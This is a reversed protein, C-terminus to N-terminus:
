PKTGGCPMPLLVVQGRFQEGVMGFAESLLTKMDGGSSIYADALDTFNKEAGANSGHWFVTTFVKGKQAVLTQRRQEATVPDDNLQGDTVIFVSSQLDPSNWKSYNEYIESLPTYIDTGGEATLRSLDFKSPDCSQFGRGSVDDWASNFAIVECYANEPLLKLLRLVARKVDEMAGSMSGSRDILISFAMKAQAAPLAAIPTQKMCIPAGSAADVAVIQRGQLVQGNKDTILVKIAGSPLTGTFTMRGGVVGLLMGTKKDLVAHTIQGKLISTGNFAAVLKGAGLSTAFRPEELSGINLKAAFEDLVTIRAVDLTGSTSYPEKIKVQAQAGAAGILAALVIVSRLAKM